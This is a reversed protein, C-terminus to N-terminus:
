QKVRALIVLRGRGDDTCTSLSIETNNARDRTVYETDTETTQFIEYITYTLTKGNTGTIQIEDGIVLNKNNSFFKGNRYNHGIIVTNGPENLKANSSPYMVGVGVELAGPSIDLLIPYEINTKKIKIYGIMPYDKYFKTKPKSTGSTTSNNTDTNLINGGVIEIIANGIENDEEIINNDEEEVNDIFDAIVKNKSKEDQYSKYANIAIITATIAIAIIVIILTVTLFASYKSRFM